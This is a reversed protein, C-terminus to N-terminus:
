LLIIGADKYALAPDPRNSRHGNATLVRDEDKLIWAVKAKKLAAHVEAKTKAKECYGRLIKVPVIHERHFIKRGPDFKTQDHWYSNELDIKIGKQKSLEKAKESAAKSIKPVVLDTLKKIDDSISERLRRKGISSLQGGNLGQIKVFIAAAFIEFLRNNLDSAM